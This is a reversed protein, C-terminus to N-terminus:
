PLAPWIVAVAGCSAAVAIRTWRRGELAPTIGAGLLPLPQHHFTLLVSGSCAAGGISLVGWWRFWLLLYALWASCVGRQRGRTAHLIGSGAQYVVVFALGAIM